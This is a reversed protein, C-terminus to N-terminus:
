QEGYFYLSKYIFNGESDYLDLTYILEDNDTKNHERHYQAM